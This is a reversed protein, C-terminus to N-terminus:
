AGEELTFYFTAGRGVEGEGWIRGGHRRIIRDTNALGIGIGDFERLTHLRQFVGFLKEAYAMDFGAGNDRVFFVPPRNPSLQGVEIRAQARKGTFKWANDLLNEFVVELLRADGNAFMEMPVVSEVSRDPHDRRLRALVTRGISALDIRTRHLETRGLRSLSLLDDILKAMHQASERVYGLYTKGEESIHEGCDEMLAQSFGDISRLPARLDHAVSYSFAELEKNATETAANAHRLAKEAREREAVENRLEVNSQEVKQRELDFDDLVNLVARQVDAQRAKEEAADDL